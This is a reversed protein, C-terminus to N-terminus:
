RHTNSTQHFGEGELMRQEHEARPGENAWNWKACGADAVARLPKLGPMYPRSSPLSQNWVVCCSPHLLPTGSITFFIRQYPKIPKILASHVSFERRISARTKFDNLDQVFENLNRYYSISIKRFRIILLGYTSWFVWYNSNKPAPTAFNVSPLYTYSYKSHYSAYHTLEIEPLFKVECACIYAFKQYVRCTCLGGGRQICIRRKIANRRNRVNWQCTVSM